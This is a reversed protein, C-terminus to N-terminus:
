LCSAEIGARLAAQTAIVSGAAGIALIIFYFFLKAM